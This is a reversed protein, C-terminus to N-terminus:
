RITDTVAAFVTFLGFGNKVNGKPTRPETILSGEEFIVDQYTSTKLYRYYEETINYKTIYPRYVKGSTPDTFSDLSGSYTSLTIEKSMGNFSRDTYLVEESDICNYSEFAILDTAYREVAPDYTFVCNIGNIFQISALYFNTGPPDNFSFKLDDLVSGGSTRRTNKIRTVSAITVPLPATTAAEIDPYGPAGARLKYFKGSAAVRRSSVYLEEAANYKLSDVFVDNEYLVVWGNTVYTDEPPAIAKQPLTKGLAIKFTDGVAVYGHLVLRPEYPPLKVDRTKTCALVFCCYVIIAFYRM